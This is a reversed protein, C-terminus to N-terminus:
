PLRRRLSEPDLRHARAVAEAHARGDPPQRRVQFTPTDNDRADVQAVLSVTPEDGTALEDLFTVVVTTCEIRRLLPMVRQFLQLADEASTSSFVENIVFVSRRSALGLAHRMRELDDQLAGTMDTTNEPRPFHTIVQDPVVWTAAAAPVPLGLSTLYSLQGVSRAFTTKGGQNPGTVVVIHEGPTLQLDNTITPEDSRINQLALAIDFLGQAGMAAGADALTPLCTNLGARNLRSALDIAGLYFQLERDLREVRPDVPEPYDRAFSSLAAFVEPNLEAVRDAIAAEVHNMDGGTRPVEVHRGRHASATGAFRAFTATVQQTLDAEGLDRSVTVDGHRVRLRVTIASLDERVGRAREQMTTFHESDVLRVLDQLVQRLGTSSHALTGAERVFTSVATGYALAARLMTEQRQVPYHRAAASTSLTRARRMQEAFRDVAALMQPHQLDRVVEHRFSVQAPTALPTRLWPELDYAGRDATLAAFVQDLNLDMVVDDFASGTAPAPDDPGFLLSAFATAAAPRPQPTITHLPM